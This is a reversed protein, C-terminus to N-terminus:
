PVVRSTGGQTLMRMGLGTQVSEGMAFFRCMGSATELISEVFGARRPKAAGAGPVPLAADRRRALRTDNRCRGIIMPVTADKNNTPAPEGKFNM